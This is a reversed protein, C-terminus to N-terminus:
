RGACNTESAMSGVAVNAQNFDRLAAIEQRAKIYYRKDPCVSLGARIPDRAVGLVRCGRKDGSL